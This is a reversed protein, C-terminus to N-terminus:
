IKKKLIEEMQGGEKFFPYLYNFNLEYKKIKEQFSRITSMTEVIYKEKKDQIKNIIKKNVLERFFIYNKTENFNLIDNENLIFKNLNSLMDDRLNNCKYILDSLSKPDSNEKCETFYKLIIKNCEKSLGKKNNTLNVYIDNVIEVCFKKEIFENLFKKIDVKSKDSLYILEVVDDIFNPCEKNNYTPLLEKFRDQLAKIVKKEFTNEQKVIFFKFLYGFDKMELILSSIKKFFDDIQSEFMSYFNIDNWKRFFQKKDEILSINIGDLIELPRYLKNSYNKNLFYVDTKIFELIKMNKIKGIKALKLGTRHLKEEINCKCVFQQDLQKISDVIYKLIILKDINIEDYFEVYKEIILSSFKILKMDENVFITFSKLGELLSLINELDDEKKPEVYKEIEIKNDEDKNMFKYIIDKTEKVVELFTSFDTGLYFLITLIQDYNKAKRIIKIVYKKPLILDKFFECYSLLGIFLHDCIKDNEFMEEIKEKQFHLNFYLALSYFLKTTEEISEKEKVHIQEPNKVFKNIINKIPKLRREPIEGIGKIKKPDFALLNNQVFDTAFCNLFISLYFLLDYKNDEDRLLLLSSFIFDENEKTKQNKKYKNRLIDLYIQFQEDLELPLIDIGEMRLKYEYFDRDIDKFGITYSHNTGNDEELIVDIKFENNENKKLVDPYIKFRYVKIILPDM